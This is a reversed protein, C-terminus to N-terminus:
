EQPQPDSPDIAQGKVRNPHRARADEATGYDLHYSSSRDSPLEQDNDKPYSRGQEPGLQYVNGNRRGLWDMGVMIGFYVLEVQGYGGFM